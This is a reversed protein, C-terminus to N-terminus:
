VVRMKKAREGRRQSSSSSPDGSAQADSEEEEEAEEEEYDVAGEDAGDSSAPMLSSLFTNTADKLSRVAELVGSYPGEAEDSAPKTPYEAGQAVVVPEPFDPGFRRLLEGNHFLEGRISM